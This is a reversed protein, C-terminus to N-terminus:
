KFLTFYGIIKEYFSPKRNPIKEIENPNQISGYNNKPKDLRMALVEVIQEEGNVIVKPCPLMECNM